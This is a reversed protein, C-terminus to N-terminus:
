RASDFAAELAARNTKFKRKAEGTQGSSPAGRISKQGDPDPDPRAPTPQSHASEAPTDPQSAPGQGGAMRYAQELKQAATLGAGYLNEVVGSRLVEAIKPELQRYDPHDNSFKEVVPMVKSAAMETKLSNLEQRVSEFEPNQRQPQQQPQTAYSAVNRQYQEPTMNAVARAFEYFSMPTGDPRTPGIERMLLEMGHAPSRMIAQEIQVMKELSERIGSRGSRKAMEDFERIEEYKQAKEQAENLQADMEKHVRSIEAKVENPTNAWKATAEPLFRAPPDVHKRGESQRPGAEKERAATAKDPEGKEAQEAKEEDKEPQEAKADQKPDDKPKEAKEADKPKEAKEADSKEKAEDFAKAIADRSSLPKEDKPPEDAQLEAGRGQATADTDRPEITQSTVADQAALDSADTM